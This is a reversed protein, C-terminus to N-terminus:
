FVTNLTFFIYKEVELYSKLVIGLSKILLLQIRLSYNKTTGPASHVPQFIKMETQNQMKTMQDIYILNWM